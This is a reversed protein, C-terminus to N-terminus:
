LWFCNKCDEATWSYCQCPGLGPGTHANTSWHRLQGTRWTSRGTSYKAYQLWSSIPLCTGKSADSFWLLLYGLMLCLSHCICPTLFPFCVLFWRLHASCSRNTCWHCHSSSSNCLVQEENDEQASGRNVRSFWHFMSTQLVVQGWELFLISSTVLHLRHHLDFKWRINCCLYHLLFLFVSYLM